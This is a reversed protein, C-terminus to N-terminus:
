GEAAYVERHGDCHMPGVVGTREMEEIMRAARNYGVNLQRQVYSISAKRSSTVLAVAQDYLLRTDEKGKDDHSHQLREQEAPSINLKAAKRTVWERARSLADRELDALSRGVVADCQAPLFDAIPLGPHRASLSKVLAHVADETALPMDIEMDFRRRVARDLMDPHNTAGVFLIRHDLRDMALLLTSVIRAQEGVDSRGSDGSREALITEMEDLFLVCPQGALGNLLKTIKAGTEGMYSTILSSYDVVLFPLCLDKAIAGALVTKGTGPPGMLLLRNRPYLNHAALADAYRQEALLDTVRLRMDASLVVQALDHTPSQLQVLKELGNDLRINDESSPNRSQVDILGQLRKKLASNEAENAAICCVTALAKAHDRYLAARALAFIEDSKAM